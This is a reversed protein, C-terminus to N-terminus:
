AVMAIILEAIRKAAQGDQLYSQNYVFEGMSAFMEDRVTPNYLANEITLSIDKATTAFIAGRIKFISPKFNNFLNVFVVPKQLAMAELAATSSIAIIAISCADLLEPLSEYKCIIPVQKLEHVIQQYDKENENPPHIKIILYSNEIKAAANAIALVFDERQKASWTGNEVFYSTLLLIIEADYPIKWRNCIKEKSNNNKIRFLNDFKPNGTVVIKEPSIGESVFRDKVANGFVAIKACEGHGYIEAAGKKGWFLEALMFEMKQYLPRDKKKILKITRKPINLFYRFRNKFDVAKKIEDRFDLFGDQVLLTPIGMRNSCKIFLRDILTNDNGFIIIDPNEKMIINRIESTNVKELSRYPVDLRALVRDVEDKRSWKDINIFSINWYPLEESIQKLMEAQTTTSVVFLAKHTKKKECNTYSM